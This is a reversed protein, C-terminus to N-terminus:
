NNKGKKQRSAHQIGTLLPALISQLHMPLGRMACCHAALTTLVSGVRLQIHAKYDSDYVHCRRVVIVRVDVIDVYTVSYM